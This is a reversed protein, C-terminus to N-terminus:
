AGASYGGAALLQGQGRWLTGRADVMDLNPTTSLVRPIIGAPAFVIAAGVFTLIGLLIYRKM